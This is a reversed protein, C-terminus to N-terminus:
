GAIGVIQFWVRAAGQATSVYCDPGPANGQLMEEIGPGKSNCTLIFPAAQTGARARINAADAVMVFRVVYVSAEPAHFVAPVDIWVGEDKAMQRGEWQPSTLPLDFLQTGSTWPEDISPVRDFVGSFGTKTVPASTVPVASAWVELTGDQLIQCGGAAIQARSDVGGIYRKVLERVTAGPRTRYVSLDQRVGGVKEIAVGYSNGNKHVFCPVANLIHEYGSYNAIPEFPM